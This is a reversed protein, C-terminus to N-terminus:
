RLKRKPRNANSKRLAVTSIIPINPLQEETTLNMDDATNHNRKIKKKVGESDAAAVAVEIVNMIVNEEEDHDNYNNEKELIKNNVDGEGENGFSLSDSHINIDDAPLQEAANNDISPSPIYGIINEIIIVDDNNDGPSSNTNHNKGGTVTTVNSNNQSMQFISRPLLRRRKEEQTAREIKANKQKEISTISKNFGDIQRLRAPTKDMNAQKGLKTHLNYLRGDLTNDRKTYTQLNQM